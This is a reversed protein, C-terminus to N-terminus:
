LYAENTGLPKELSARWDFLTSRQGNKIEFYKESLYAWGAAGVNGAYKPHSFAATVAHRRLIYLFFPPNSYLGYDWGEIRNAPNSPDNAMDNYLDNFYEKSLESPEVYPNRKRLVSDIQKLCLRYDNLRHREERALLKDIANVEGVSEDLRYVMSADKAQRDLYNYFQQLFLEAESVRFPLIQETLRYLLKLEWLELVIPQLYNETFFRSWTKGNELLVRQPNIPDLTPTGDVVYQYIHITSKPVAVSLAFYGTAEGMFQISRLPIAEYLTAFSGLVGVSVNTGPATKYVFIVENDPDTADFPSGRFVDIVPFRWADSSAAPDGARSLYKTCLNLVDQDDKEVIRVPM